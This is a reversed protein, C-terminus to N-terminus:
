GGEADPEVHNQAFSRLPPRQRCASLGFTRHSVTEFLSIGFGNHNMKKPNLGALVQRSRLQSCPKASTVEAFGQEQKSKKTKPPALQGYARGEGRQDMKRRDDEILM